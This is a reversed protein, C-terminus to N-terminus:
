QSHPQEATQWVHMGRPVRGWLRAALVFSYDVCFVQILDPSLGLLERGPTQRAQGSNGVACYDGELLSFVGELWGRQSLLSLSIQLGSFLFM